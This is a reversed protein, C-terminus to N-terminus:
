RGRGPIRYCFLQTQRQDGVAIIMEPKLDPVVFSNSILLTGPRMEQRAKRWLASMPAPSLFAYVIDYAAFSHQWFDQRLLHANTQPRARWRSLLFPGPAVECGTIQWDPRLDALQLVFSGTGSGVDLVQLNHQASFRAAFRHVTTRNSLFLPVRTRFTTWYITLLLLFCMGYVRAPLGLQIALVVGPFFALHLAVWWRDAKAMLSLFAACLAQMAALALADLPPLLGSRGIVFVLILALLQCRLATSLASPM